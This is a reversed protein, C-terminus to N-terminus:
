ISKTLVLNLTELKKMTKDINTEKVNKFLYDTNPSIENSKVQKYIINIKSTVNDIFAKNAILPIDLKPEETIFNIAAYVVYKKSKKSGASYKICYLELLSQIIKECSRSSKKEGGNTIGGM